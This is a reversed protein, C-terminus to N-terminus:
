GKPTPNKKPAPFKWPDDDRDPQPLIEDEETDPLTTPTPLVEPEEPHNLYNEM